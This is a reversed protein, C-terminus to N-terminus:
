IPQMCDPRDEVRVIIFGFAFAVRDARNAVPGSTGLGCEAIAEEFLDAGYQFFREKVVAYGVPRRERNM